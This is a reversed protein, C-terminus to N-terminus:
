IGSKFKEWNIYNNIQFSRNNIQTLISKLFDVVAHQYGVKLSKNIIEPDAELHTDIDQKLIKLRQPEWGYEKLEEIDLEGKLHSTKAKKFVNFEALRKDLRLKEYSYMLYYKNHLKPTKASDGSINTEDIPGDKEWMASIEELTM